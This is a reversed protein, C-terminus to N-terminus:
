HGGINMIPHQKGTINKVIPALNMVSVLPLM